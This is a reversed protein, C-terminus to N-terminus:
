NGGNRGKYEGAFDDIEVVDQMKIGGCTGYSTNLPIFDNRVMSYALSVSFEIDIIPVKLFLFNRIEDRKERERQLQIRDERIMQKIVSKADPFTEILELASLRHNEWPNLREVEEAYLIEENTM